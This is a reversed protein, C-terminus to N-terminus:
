TVAGIGWALLGGVLAGLADAVIDKWSAYGGGKTARDRPNKQIVELVIGALFALFSSVGWPVDLVLAGLLAIAAAFVFHIRKDKARHSLEDAARDAETGESRHVQWGFFYVMWLFVALIGAMLFSAVYPNM